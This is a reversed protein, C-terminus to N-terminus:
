KRKEGRLRYVHLLNRLPEADISLDGINVKATGDPYDYTFYTTSSKGSSEVYVREDTIVKWDQFDTDATQIGNTSLIIQPKTNTYEKFGSYFLYAGVLAMGGGLVTSGTTMFYIGFGALALAILMNFMSAPKSFYILTESSITVDDTYVDKQKFRDALAALRQKDDASTITIKNWASGDAYMLKSDIARQKLEHINDVNEYAWIKWKNAQLCWYLATFLLGLVIGGVIMWGTLGPYLNSLVFGAGIFIFFIAGSGYNLTANGKKLAENVTVPM